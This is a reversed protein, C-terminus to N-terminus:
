CIFHLRKFVYRCQVVIKRYCFLVRIISSLRVMEQLLMSLKLRRRRRKRRRRRMMMLVVLSSSLLLLLLVFIYGEAMQM